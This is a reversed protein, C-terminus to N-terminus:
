PEFTFLIKQFRERQQATIYRGIRAMLVNASSM